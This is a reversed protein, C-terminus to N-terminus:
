CSPAAGHPHVLEGATKLLGQGIRLAQGDAAIVGLDFGGVQELGQKVLGSASGGRQQLLRSHIGVFQAIFQGGEEIAVRGKLVCGALDADARLEGSQQVQAVLQGLLVLILENGALPKQEGGDVVLAGNALCQAFGAAALRHQLM